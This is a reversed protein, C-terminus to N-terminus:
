ECSVCRIERRDSPVAGELLIDHSIYALTNSESRAVAEARCCKVEHHCPFLVLM